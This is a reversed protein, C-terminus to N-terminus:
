SLANALQTAPTGRAADCCGLVAQTLRTIEEEMRNLHCNMIVRARANCTGGTPETNDLLAQIVKRMKRTTTQLSIVASRAEAFSAPEVLDSTVSTTATAADPIVPDVLDVPDSTASAAASAVGPIIQSKM